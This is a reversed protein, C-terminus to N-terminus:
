AEVKVDFLGEYVKVLASTDEAGLGEARAMENLLQTTTSLPMPAKYERAMELALNNDKHLLDVSFLPSYDRDLMKPGLERFLNSVTAAGSNEILDFLVKPPM